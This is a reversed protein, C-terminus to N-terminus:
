RAKDKVEEIQSRLLDLERQLTQVSFSLTEIELNKSRIKNRTEGIWEILDRMCHQLNNKSVPDNQLLPATAWSCSGPGLIDSFDSSYAGSPIVFAFLSVMGALFLASLIPKKM